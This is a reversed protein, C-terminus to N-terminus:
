TASGEQLAKAELLRPDFDIGSPAHGDVVVEPGADGADIGDPVDDMPGHQRVLCLLVTDGGNLNDCTLNM